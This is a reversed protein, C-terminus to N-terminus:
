KPEYWPAILKADAIHLRSLPFSSFIQGDDRVLKITKADRNLETVSGIITRGDSSHWKRKKTPLNLQSIFKLVFVTHEGIKKTGVIEVEDALVVKMNDVLNETPYGSLVFHRTQSEVRTSIVSNKSDLINFIKFIYCSVKGSDGIVHNHDYLDLCESELQEAYVINTNGLISLKAASQWRMEAERLFRDTAIMDNYGRIDGVFQAHCPTYLLSVFVILLQKFKKFDRVWVAINIIDFLGLGTIAKSRHTQHQLM